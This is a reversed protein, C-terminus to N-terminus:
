QRTKHIPALLAGGCWQCRRVIEHPLPIVIWFQRDIRYRPANASHNHSTYVACAWGMKRLLAVIAAFTVSVSVLV